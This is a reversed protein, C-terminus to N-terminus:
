VDDAELIRSLDAIGVTGDQNFDSRLNQTSMHLMFISVDALTQAGDGNLDTSPPADRVTIPAVTKTNSQVILNPTGISVITDISTPLTSDTGLGDHILIRPEHLTLKANGERKTEFTIRILNGTGRFGGSQTSGGAFNITGAGNEYWPKEAWLDAISTNYDISAVQLLDPDFEIVGAFVNVPIQSMVMVDVTFQDGVLEVQKDTELYMDTTTSETLLLAGIAAVLGVAGTLLLTLPLINGPSWSRFWRKM